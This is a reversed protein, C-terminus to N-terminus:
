IEEGGVVAKLAAHCIALPATEAHAEFEPDDDNATTGILCTWKSSCCQYINITDAIFAGYEEGLYCVPKKRMMEAVEWAAKIDTSYPPAHYVRHPKGYQIKNGEEDVFPGFDGVYSGGETFVLLPYLRKVRDSWGYVIKKGTWGMVKEAVLADLERGALEDIRM